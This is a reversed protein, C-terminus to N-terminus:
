FSSYMKGFLIKPKDLNFANASSLYCVVCVIREASSETSFMTTVLM